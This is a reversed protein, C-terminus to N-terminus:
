LQSNGEFVLKIVLHGAEITGLVLYVALIPVSGTEEKKSKSKVPMRGNLNTALLQNIVKVTVSPDSSGLKLWYVSASSEGAPVLRGDLSRELDNESNGSSENYTVPAGLDAAAPM